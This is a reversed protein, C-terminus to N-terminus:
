LAPYCGLQKISTTYKYLTNWILTAPRKEAKSSSVAKVSAIQRYIHRRCPGRCFDSCANDTATDAGRADDLTTLTCSPSPTSHAEHIASPLVSPSERGEFHAMQSSEAFTVWGTHAIGRSFPALAIDQAQHFGETIPAPMPDLRCLHSAYFQEVAAGYEESDTTGESEYRDLIDQIKATTERM